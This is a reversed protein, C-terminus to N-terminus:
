LAVCSVFTLSWGVKKVGALGAYYITRCSTIVKVHKLENLSYLNEPKSIEDFSDL